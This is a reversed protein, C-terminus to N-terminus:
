SKFHPRRTVIINKGNIRSADFTGSSMCLRSVTASIEETLSDSFARDNLFIFRETLRRM